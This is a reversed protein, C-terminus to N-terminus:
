AERRQVWHLGVVMGAVIALLALLSQASTTSIGTLGNGINCGGAFVAGIGMLLGGLLCPGVQQGSPAVWHFQGAMAASALAGILMGALFPVGFGPAPIDPSTLSLGARALPGAISVSVPARPDFEDAALYGSWWWGAAVLAGALTGAAILKWDRTAKGLLLIGAGCGAALVAAPLWATADLLAALGTDGGPPEWALPLLLGRVPTLAGFLAAMAGFAFALLTVLASLNGEAVRIVTRGACGGALLSGFGFALGGLSAAIWNLASARYASSEVAVWHGSELLCTGAVAVGAAALYGHLQRCDRTLFLNSVASVMCLRSRQLVIGFALGLVAGGTALWLDNSEWM